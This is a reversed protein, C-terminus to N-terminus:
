LLLKDFLWEICFGVNKMVFLYVCLAVGIWLIFIAGLIITTVLWSAGKVVEYALISVDKLQRYLPTGIIVYISVGLIVVGISVVSLVFITSTNKANGFSDILFWISYVLLSSLLILVFISGALKSIRRVQQQLRFIRLKNM